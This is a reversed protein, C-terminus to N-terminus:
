LEADFALFTSSNNNAMLQSAGGDLLPTGSVGASVVAAHTTTYTDLAITTCEIISASHYLAYVSATGSTVLSPKVRMEIPYDIFCQTTTANINEGIGFRTYVGASQLNYFYRRCKQLQDAYSIHEFPTAEGLELQVGTLYLTASATGVLKVASSTCLYSGSQWSNATTAFGSGMGLDFNVRLCATNDTSWTGTTDGVITVTKREWTNAANITYEFVYSRNAAGNQCCGSFTGTLSSKVYFSLTFTLAGSNGLALQACNFGEISQRMYYYDGSAISSDATNVTIKLSNNFGLPADTSQEYYLVGGGGQYQHFRDVVYAGDSPPSFSTGRQAVQMAGNIILNRNGFQGVNLGNPDITSVAM